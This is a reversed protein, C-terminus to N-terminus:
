FLFRRVTLGHIMWIIIMNANGIHWALVLSIDKGLSHLLDAPCNLVLDELIFELYIFTEFLTRQQRCQLNMTMNIKGDSIEWLFWFPLLILNFAKIELVTLKGYMKPCCYEANPGSYSDLIVSFLYDIDAYKPSAAKLYLSNELTLETVRCVWWIVLCMNILKCLVCLSYNLVMKMAWVLFILQEMAFM